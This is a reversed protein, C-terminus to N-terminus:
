MNELVRRLNVNFEHSGVNKKIGGTLITTCINALAWIPSINITHKTWVLILLKTSIPVIHCFLQFNIHTSFNQHSSFIPLKFFFKSVLCPTLQMEFYYIEICIISLVVCMLDSPIFLQCQKMVLRRYLWCYTLVEAAERCGVVFPHLLNLCALGYTM